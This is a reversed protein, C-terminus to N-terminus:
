WVAPIYWIRGSRWLYKGMSSAMSKDVSTSEGTLSSENVQLSYSNLIRGDAVVMDGAALVARPDAARIEQLLRENRPGFSANHLDALLVLSFPQWPRSLPSRIKYHSTKIESM